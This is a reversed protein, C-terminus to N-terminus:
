GEVIDAEESDRSHEVIPGALAKLEEIGQKGLAAMLARAIPRLSMEDDTLLPGSHQHQVRPGFREPMARELLWQRTGVRLKDRQVGGKGDAIEILQEAWAEPRAAKGKEIAKCFEPYTKTGDPNEANLWRWLTSTHPMSPSKCIEKFTKGTMLQTAIDETLAPTPKAPRAKRVPKPADKAKGLDARPCAEDVARPCADGPAAGCESCPTSIAPSM